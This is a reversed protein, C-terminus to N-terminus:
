AAAVAAAPGAILSRVDIILLLSDEVEVIGTAVREWYPALPSRIDLLKTCEILDDVQEVLLAYSHGDAEVLVAQRLEEGCAAAGGGIAAACDIVTMVRSRIAALGAVHAPARPVPTVAEIDSVSNVDAAPIAIREGAIVAILLLEAM